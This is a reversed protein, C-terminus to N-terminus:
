LLQEIVKAADGVKGTQRLRKNLRSLNDRKIGATSATQKKGPRQMQPIQKKVRKATNAAQEKEARLAQVESRLDHMEKAAAVLRHDFITKIEDPEYGISQMTERATQTDSEGWEPYKEKLYDQERARLQTLQDNQFQQYRQAAQQRVGQIYQIQEGLETRRANWEAADTNRLNQMDPHNLMNEFIQQTAMLAAAADQNATEFQQMRNQTDMDLARRKEAYEATGKRYDADKQYGRQLEELTVNMDEGAAKFSVKLAKKLEDPSLELAEALEELSQIPEDTDQQDVDTDEAASQEQTEDTDGDETLETDEDEEDSLQQDNALQDDTFETEDTQAKKAFQGKDNRPRANETARPDETEDYDPHARSMQGDNYHGDEDLLGSIQAAASRLDTGEEAPSQGINENEPM